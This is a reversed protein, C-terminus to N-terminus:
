EADSEPGSYDDDDNDHDSFSPSEEDVGIVATWQNLLNDPLVHSANTAHERIEITDLDSRCVELQGKQNSKKAFAVILNVLLHLRKISDQNEGQWKLVENRVDTVHTNEEEFLGQNHYAVIFNPIQSVWLRPYIESM